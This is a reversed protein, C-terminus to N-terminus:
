IVLDDDDKKLPVKEPRKKPSKKLKKPDPLTQGSEVKKGDKWPFVVRLGDDGNEIRVKNPDTGVPVPFSRNFSMVRKGMNGLDKELSGVISVQGEKVKLDFTGGQAVAGDILLVMGEKEKLWRNNLGAGLGQHFGNQFAKFMEDFDDGGFNRMSDEFMKDMRDLFGKQFYQELAKRDGLLQNRLDRLLKQDETLEKKQPESKGKQAFNNPILLVANM